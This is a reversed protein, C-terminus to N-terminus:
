WWKEAQPYFNCIEFGSAANAGFQLFIFIPNANFYSWHVGHQIAIPLIDLCPCHSITNSFLIPQFMPKPISISHQFLTPIIDAFTSYRGNSCLLIHLCPVFNYCFLLTLKLVQAQWWLSPFTGHGDCLSTFAVIRSYSPVLDPLQTKLAGNVFYIKTIQRAKELSM